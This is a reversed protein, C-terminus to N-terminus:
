SSYDTYLRSRPGSRMGSVLIITATRRGLSRLHPNADWAAHLRDHHIRCIALMDEYTERGLRQYDLHHLDIDPDGCVVCTAPQGTRRQHETLWWDRRAFWAPSTMYDTYKARRRSRSATWLSGPRAARM